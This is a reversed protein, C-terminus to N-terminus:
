VEFSEWERKVRELLAEYEPQGRMKTLFPDHEALMPYNIFGVNVAQETWRLAKPFSGVNAFCGAVIAVWLPDRAFTPELDPILARDVGESDGLLAFRGLQGLSLMANVSDDMSVSELIDLAQQVHGSLALAFAYCSQGGPHEPEMEYMRGWPEMALDYRGAYYHVAGQCWQTLWAMPDVRSLRDVVSAAADTKGTVIYTGALGGLALPEEPNLELACKFKWVSEQHRGRFDRDVMGSLTHAAPIEPDLELAKTVYEEVRAVGEEQMLGLNVNQFYVLAVGAYLHANPGIIDLANQLHRLARDLADATATGFVADNARLYYEYAAVNEFPREGIRQDEEPSLQLELEGVIARSVKEQMDFVDDLKGTYKDAWVHVDREADILQATIRLNNGAKRVSGELVYRVNLEKAIEPIKKDSGKFTMASSRSIVELAHVKSLDSIVEETLGDSFYEQDPDPSLNEFPLVVISKKEEQAEVDAAFLADSFAKAGEFRAAPVKGLAKEIAAAVTKPVDSRVTMIPPAPDTMHKALVARPNSAVFPPDGALMEYLVCALAYIDSRGDIEQEGSVQEPSMYAPTGPSFGTETLRTGGASDVALAIGFVAVVVEGAQFLINEPKVDRHVIDRSHAYSLASAVQSTIKLAEDVSLQRDRNLRDRLSEGEVFPMVYYLFEGQEEVATGAYRRVASARGGYRRVARGSDLLPLIHPHNLNATIRIERFFRETGLAAALEPRFVKVAVKREHKVDHALYVTAMGGAGVEREIVYRDALVAALRSLMDAM